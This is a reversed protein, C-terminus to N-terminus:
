FKKKYVFVRYDPRFSKGWHDICHVEDIVIRSIGTNKHIKRLSYVFGSLNVREPTVYLLKVDSKKM